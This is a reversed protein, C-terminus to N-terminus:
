FPVASTYFDKYLAGQYSKRNVIRERHVMEKPHVNQLQLVHKQPKKIQFENIYNNSQSAKLSKRQLRAQKIEKILINCHDVWYKEPL